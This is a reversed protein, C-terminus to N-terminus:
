PGGQPPPANALAIKRIEAATVLNIAKMIGGYAAGADGDIIVKPDKENSARERLLAVAAAGDAEKGEVYITGEKDVSVLIPSAIPGGAGTPRTVEVGRSVILRATVMFIVLLVLMVDVLPTVNIETIAAGPEEDQYLSGGAM